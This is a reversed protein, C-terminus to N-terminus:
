SSDFIESDTHHAAQWGMAVFAYWGYSAGGFGHDHPSHHIRAGQIVIKESVMVLKEWDRYQQDHFSLFLLHEKKVVSHM